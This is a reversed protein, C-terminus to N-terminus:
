RSTNLTPTWVLTAAYTRGAEPFGEQLQWDRNALNEGALLLRLTPTLGIDLGVSILGFGSTDRAGNTETNRGSELRVGTRLAVRESLETRTTLRLEQRPVDVPLIEPSSLNDRDLFAYGLEVGGIVPLDRGIALDFGRNRQRGINQNQSCPPSPCLDPAVTVAEIADDVWGGFVSLTVDSGLWEGRLSFELHDAREEGLSANPIARGLRFSYRDKITPFRTKRAVNIGLVWSDDLQWALGARANVASADDLPFSGIQGGPLKEDARRADLGSWGLGIVGTLRDGFLQEHEVALSWNADELREVPEGIDDTERHVDRKYHAVARTVARDSSTWELESSGGWTYDDYESTFAFPLDQTTYSADDFSLLLNNFTGYFARGRLVVRDHVPLTGILYLNQTDYKPWRWFRRQVGPATGAYPPTQKEGDLRAYSLQWSAGDDGEWGLRLSSNLDRGGSNDRRGGDEGSGLPGYSGPIRFHNRDNLSAVAQVFWGGTAVGALVGYESAALDHRDDLTIGARTEVTLGDVPRRTVVNIAGGLANAGYLVSGGARTVIVRDVDRIGLRSLDINGDYPVYIPVGDIFLPVQRSDFGRVNVLSESRAGLRTITVGPVRELADALSPSVLNDLAVVVDLHQATDLQRPLPRAVVEVTQILEAAAPQWAALAAAIGLIAIAQGPLTSPGPNRRTPHRM